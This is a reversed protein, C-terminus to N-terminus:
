PAIGIVLLRRALKEEPEARRGIAAALPNHLGVELLVDTTIKVFAARHRRKTALTGTDNLFHFVM